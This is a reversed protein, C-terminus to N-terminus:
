RGKVRELPVSCTLLTGGKKAKEVRLSGGLLKSRYKMIDLGKGDESKKEKEDFGIGNDKVTLFLFDDKAFLNINVKDAKGHATANRLAEQAIYYLSSASAPDKIKVAGDTDFTCEIRYLSRAQKVLNRFAPLVNEDSEVPLVFHSLERIDNETEVILERIKEMQQRYEESLHKFEPSIIDLLMKIGLLNQATEDHLFQGIRWRERKEVQLIDEQLQKEIEIKKELELYAGKLELHIQFREIAEGIMNATRQVLTIEHSTLLRKELTYVGIVGYVSRAGKVKTCMGSTIKKELLAESPEFREDHTLDKIIVPDENKLAFDIESNNGLALTFEGMQEKTWGKGYELLVNGKDPQRKFLAAFDLALKETLMDLANHVVKDISSSDLIYKGLEAISEENKAQYFLEEEAMKLDTIDVFALVAGNMNAETTKYPKIHMMYWNGNRAKVQKKVPKLDDIVQQIDSILDDHLLEHTVHFLPRGLDSNILHFIDRANSTYLNINLKEDVFVIGIKTAEMLNKLDNSAKKHEDVKIELEQNVTRLEENVSQLEEKSTELEETTTQLEENMSQLEENSAMLEENSTEYEEIIQQLQEKTQALENELQEVIEADQTELTESIKKGGGITDPEEVKEFMVQRFGKPFGPMEVPQISLKLIYIKDENNVKITKSLPKPKDMQGFQFIVNRLSRQIQPAALKLLNRTPEGESYRLYNDVGKSSHMVQNNEDVIISAPAFQNALLLYHVKDFTFDNRDGKHGLGFSRSRYMNPLLPFRPIDKQSKSVKRAKYIGRSKNVPAFLDKSGITSDSMGLFM